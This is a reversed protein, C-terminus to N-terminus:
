RQRALIRRVRLSWLQSQARAANLWWRPVSWGNVLSDRLRFAAVRDDGANAALGALQALNIARMRRLQARVAPAPVLGLARALFRERGSLAAYRDGRSFHKDHLRVKVLPLPVVAVNSIAALRVWLDYDGYCGFSEEFLGAAFLLAREALVSPLAVGTELLALSELLSGAAPSREPDGRTIVPRYQEDICTSATYSWRCEPRGRLVALQSELKEEHWVDDSDAFAIYRCSAERIAANRVAGPKGCHSLWLVRVRPMAAYKELLTRTPSDSGDDAIIIERAPLTQALVSDIAAPLFQARNWTPMVVSVDTSATM